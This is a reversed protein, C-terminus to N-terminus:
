RDRPPLQPYLGSHRFGCKGLFEVYPKVNKTTRESLSSVLLLKWPRCSVFKVLTEEFERRAGPVNAHGSYDCPLELLCLSQLTDPILPICNTLLTPWIQLTLIDERITLVDLSGGIAQIVAPVREELESLQDPLGHMALKRLDPWLWVTLLTEICRIDTFQIDLSMVNAVVRPKKELSHWDLYKITITRLNPAYIFLNAWFNDDAVTGEFNLILYELSRFPSFVDDCGMITQGALELLVLDPFNQCTFPLYYQSEGRFALQYLKPYHVKSLLQKICHFYELDSFVIDLSSWTGVTELLAEQFAGTEESCMRRLASSSLEVDIDHGKARKCWEICLWTPWADWNASTYYRSTDLVVNRWLQCVHSLRIVTSRHQPPAEPSSEILHDFIKALMEGPLASIPSTEAHIRRRLMKLAVIGQRTLNNYREQFRALEADYRDLLTEDQQPLPSSISADLAVLFADNTAELEELLKQAGPLHMVPAISTDQSPQDM